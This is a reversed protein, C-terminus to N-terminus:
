RPSFRGAGLAAATRDFLDKVVQRPGSLQPHDVHLLTLGATPRITTRPGAVDLLAPAVCFDTGTKELGVRDARLTVGDIESSSLVAVTDAGSRRVANVVDDVALGGFVPVGAVEDSATERVSLRRGRHARPLQGAATRTVLDDVAAEPGVALVTSMCQGQRAGGTCGSAGARVQRVSRAGVMTPMSLLLYDRSLENNMAYSLIALGATLSFGANLVKRFEDSGTGLFRVNYAASFAVADGGM